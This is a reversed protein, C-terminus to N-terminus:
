EQDALDERDGPKRDPFAPLVPTAHKKLDLYRLATEPEASFFRLQPRSRVPYWATRAYAALPIARFRGRPLPFHAGPTRGHRCGKLRGRGGNSPAHRM